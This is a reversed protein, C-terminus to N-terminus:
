FVVGLQELGRCDAVAIRVGAHAAADSLEAHKWAAPSPSDLVGGGFCLLICVDRGSFVASLRQVIGGPQFWKLVKNVRAADRPNTMSSEVIIVPDHEHDADRKKSVIIADAAFNSSTPLYLVSASDTHLDLSADVTSFPLSYSTSLHVAPAADGTLTVVSLSVRVADLLIHLQNELEYGQDGGERLSRIRTMHRSGERSLVSHLVSAAVPSVPVTHGSSVRAVLGADYMPKLEAWTAKGLVLNRVVGAAIKRDNANTMESLWRTCCLAMEQRIDQEAADFREKGEDGRHAVLIARFRLLTRVVGGGVFAARQRASPASMYGPSVPNSLFVDRATDTWPTVYRLRHQEGSALSFERVGHASAIDMRVFPATVAAAWSHWTLRFYEAAHSHAKAVEDTINQVEDVIIGIAPAGVRTVHGLQDLLPSSLEADGLFVPLFLPRFHESSLILDANQQMFADLLFADGEQSTTRISRVWSVASAIYVAPLGQAVCALYALLGVASKGVGNPGSLLVGVAIHTPAQMADLFESALQVRTSDLMFDMVSSAFQSFGKPYQLLPDTIAPLRIQALRLSNDGAPMLNVADHLVEGRDRLDRLHLLSTVAALQERLRRTRVVLDQVNHSLCHWVTPPVGLRADHPAAGIPGAALRRVVIFDNRQLGATALSQTTDLAPNLQQSARDIAKHLTLTDLDVARLSPLERVIAKKLQSVSASSPISVDTWDAAGARKVWLTLLPDEYRAHKVGGAVEVASSDDDSGERSRKSGATAHSAAATDDM